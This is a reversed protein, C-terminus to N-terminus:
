APSCMAPCWTRPASALRKPGDLEQELVLVRLGRKVDEPTFPLRTERTLVGRGVVLVDLGALSDGAKIARARLGVKAWETGTQGSPDFLGWRSALAQPAPLRPFLTLPTEDHCLVAGATDSVTLRLRASTRASVAPISFRLPRKEIAGASMRFTEDGGAVRVSYARRKGAVELEWRATFAKDGPGDWVAVISREAVEGSTYRPEVATFREAPGGLYVLLPQMTDRYADYLPNAWAPRQHLQEPTGTLNEYQYGMNGPKYGPPAGFGVDFFWPFIGGNLGYARWAKNVGRIFRDMVSYYATWDGLHALSGEAALRGEAEFPSTAPKTQIRASARVYDDTEAAYAADGLYIACYETVLPVVLRKFFDVTLPAGHEVAGWPKEGSKSWASLYQEQEALPVWNLYLNSTEMDGTQGGQHHYILRTPDV